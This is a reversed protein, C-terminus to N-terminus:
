ANLWAKIKFHVASLEAVSRPDLRRYGAEHEQQVEFQQYWGNKPGVYVAEYIEDFQDATIDVVMGAQELWAHSNGNKRRGAVYTFGGHGLEKLIEALVECTDGCAGKPFNKFTVPIGAKDMEEFAMRIKKLDQKM